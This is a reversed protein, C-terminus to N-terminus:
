DFLNKNYVLVTVFVDGPSGIIENLSTVNGLSAMGLEAEKAHRHM